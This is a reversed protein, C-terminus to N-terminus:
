PQNWRGRGFSVCGGEIEFVQRCGDCARCLPENWHAALWSGSLEMIEGCPCQFRDGLEVAVSNTEPSGIEGFVAFATSCDTAGSHRNDGSDTNM